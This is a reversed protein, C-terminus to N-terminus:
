CTKAKRSPIPFHLSPLLLLMTRRKMESGTRATVIKEGPDLDWQVAGGQTTRAKTLSGQQPKLRL